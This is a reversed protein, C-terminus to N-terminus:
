ILADLIRIAFATSMYLVTNNAADKNFKLRWYKFIEIIFPTTKGEYILLRIDHLIKSKDYNGFDLIKGTKSCVEM